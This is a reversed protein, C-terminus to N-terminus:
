LLKTLSARSIFKTFIYELCFNGMRCCSLRDLFICVLAIVVFHVLPVALTIFTRACVTDGICQVLTVLANPNKELAYVKVLREAKTAAQLSERVLPGRGAGVVM